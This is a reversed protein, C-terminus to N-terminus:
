KARTLEIGLKKWEALISEKSIFGEHRFLERGSADYFIQTPILRIGYKNAQEPNEWVDILEVELHGAYETKLEELIPAMMKCPICRGAGLDVLRPLANTANPEKVIDSEAAPIASEIADIGAISKCYRNADSKLVIVAGVVVILVTVVAIRAIKNM